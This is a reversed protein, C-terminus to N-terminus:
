AKEFAQPTWLCLRQDREASRSIGWRELARLAQAGAISAGMRLPMRAASAVKNRKKIIGFCPIRVKKVLQFACVGFSTHANKESSHRFGYWLGTYFDGQPAYAALPNKM